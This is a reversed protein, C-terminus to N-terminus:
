KLERLAKELESKSMARMANFDKMVGGIIKKFSM